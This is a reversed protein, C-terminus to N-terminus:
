NAALIFIGSVIVTTLVLLSPNLAKGKKNGLIENFFRKAMIFM